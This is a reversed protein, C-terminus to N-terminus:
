EKELKTKYSVGLKLSIATSLDALNNDLNSTLFLTNILQWGYTKYWIM